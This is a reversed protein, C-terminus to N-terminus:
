NKTLLGYHIRKEINFCSFHLIECLESTSTVVFGKDSPFPKHIKYLVNEFYIYRVLLSLFNRHLTLGSSRFTSPYRDTYNWTFTIMVIYNM